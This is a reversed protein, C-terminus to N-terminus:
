LGLPVYQLMDHEHSWAENKENQKATSDGHTAKVDQLRLMATGTAECFSAFQTADGFGMAQREDWRFYRMLGMPAMRFIGGLMAVHHVYEGKVDYVQMTPPPADLGQINLSLVGPKGWLEKLNEQLKLLRTLWTTGRIWCDDDIRIHWDYHGARVADDLMANHAVHQGVNFPHVTVLTGVPIVRLDIPGNAWVMIDVPQKALAALTRKLYKERGTRTVVCCVVRNGEYVEPVPVDIVSMM